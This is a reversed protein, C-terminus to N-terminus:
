FKDNDKQKERRLKAKASSLAIVKLNQRRWTVMNNEVVIFYRSTFKWRDRDEVWDDDTYVLLDM